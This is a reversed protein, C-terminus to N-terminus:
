DDSDDEDSSGLMNAAVNVVWPSSDQLWETMDNRWTLAELGSMDTPRRAHPTWVKVTHELGSTALAMCQPNPELCNVAGVEDAKLLQVVKETSKEWIFVHRCDSGSVVYESNPGFFNVGKITDNNRHGTYRHVPVTRSLETNFIYISEDNYTALLEKGDNSYVVCTVTAHEKMSKVTYLQVPRDDTIYRQDYVSLTRSSGSVAFYWPQVPNTFISYLRAHRPSRLEMSQVLLECEDTRLDISFVKGDEGCSRVTHPNGPELALKHAADDHEAVTKSTVDGSPTLLHRRVLGDRATSVMMSNLCSPMFKAQFVNSSHGSAFALTRKGRRWDWLMVNLDDGSSALVEGDESYHLTNVCGEHGAIEREKDLRRVLAYSSMARRRLSSASCLGLHRRRLDYATSWRTMAPCRTDETCGPIDPEAAGGGIDEDSTNEDDDDDDDEDEDDCSPFEPFLRELISADTESDSIQAYDHDSSEECSGATSNETGVLSGDCEPSQSGDAVGAAGDAVPSDAEEDQVMRTAGSEEQSMSDKEKDDAGLESSVVNRSKQDCVKGQEGESGQCKEEPSADM